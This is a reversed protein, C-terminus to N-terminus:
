RPERYTVKVNLYTAGGYDHGRIALLSDPKLDSKPVTANIADSQCSGSQVYQLLHGNLYVHADNDITGRIHVDKADGPIDVTHRVLMDTNPTWPTKVYHSNNWVCEDDTTGFGEQGDKWGRDDFRPKYFGHDEGPKVQRYKWGKSEYHLGVTTSCRECDPLLQKDAM